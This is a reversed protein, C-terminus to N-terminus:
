LDEVSPISQAEIPDQRAIQDLFDKLTGTAQVVTALPKGLLRDLLKTLADLDGDAAKVAASYLAAELMTMGICAANKGTYPMGVAERIQSTIESPTMRGGGVPVIDGGVLAANGSPLYVINDVATPRGIKKEAVAGPPKVEEMARPSKVEEM